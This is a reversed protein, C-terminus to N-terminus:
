LSDAIINFQEIYCSWSLYSAVALVKGDPMSNLMTYSILVTTLTDGFLQSLLLNNDTSQSTLLSSLLQYIGYGKKVAFQYLEFVISLLLGFGTTLSPINTEALVDFYLMMSGEFAVFNAVLSVASSIYNLLVGTSADLINQPIIGQLTSKDKYLQNTFYYSGVSFIMTKALQLSLSWGSDQAFSLMNLFTFVDSSMKSAQVWAIDGIASDYTNQPNFLDQQAQPIESTLITPLNEISLHHNPDNFILYGTCFLSATLWYTIAAGLISIGIQGLLPINDLNIRIGSAISGLEEASYDILKSSLISGIIGTIDVDGSNLQYNSPQQNSPLNVLNFALKNLSNTNLTGYNSFSLVQNSNSTISYYNNAFNHTNTTNVISNEFWKSLHDFIRNTISSIAWEIQKEGGIWNLIDFINGSDKLPTITTLGSLHVDQNLQSSDIITNTSNKWSTFVSNDLIKNLLNQLNSPIAIDNGKPLMPEVIVNWVQDVVFNAEMTAINKEIEIVPGM